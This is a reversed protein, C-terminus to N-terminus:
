SPGGLTSPNPSALSRGWATEVGVNCEYVPPGLVLGCRGAETELYTWRWQSSHPVSDNLIRNLSEPAENIFLHMSHYMCVHTHLAAKFGHTNHLVNLKFVLTSTSDIHWHCVACYECFSCCTYFEIFYNFNIIYMWKLSFSWFATLMNSLEAHTM